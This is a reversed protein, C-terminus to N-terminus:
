KLPKGAIGWNERPVEDINVWIYNPDKDLVEAVVNTLKEILEAKTAEDRGELMRLNIFPM